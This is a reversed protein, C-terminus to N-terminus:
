IIKKNKVDITCDRVVPYTDHMEEEDAIHHMERCKSKEVLSIMYEDSTDNPKNVIYSDVKYKKDKKSYSIHNIGGCHGNEDDCNIGSAVSHFQSHTGADRFRLGTIPNNNYVPNWDDGNKLYKNWDDISGTTIIKSM